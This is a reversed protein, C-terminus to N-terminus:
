IVPRPAGLFEVAPSELVSASLLVTDPSVPYVTTL